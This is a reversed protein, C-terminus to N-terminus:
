LEPVKDSIIMNKIEEGTKWIDGAGMTIIMDGTQMKERIFNILDDNNQIYYSEHHGSEILCDSILKGSM